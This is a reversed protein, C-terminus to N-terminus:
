SVCGVLCNTAEGVMGARGFDEVIREVLRPDCLLELAAAREDADLHVTTDVPEQAQRIAEEVQGEAAALVLGLDKKLVTEDVAIEGAAEKVFGARARASCLDLTDLHFGAGPGQSSRTVMVQVRLVDFSTNRAM